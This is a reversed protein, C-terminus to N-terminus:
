QTKFLLIAVHGLYFYIFHKTETTADTNVCRGLQLQGWWSDRFQWFEERSHLALNRREEPRVLAM